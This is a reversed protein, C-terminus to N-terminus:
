YDFFEPAFAVTMPQAGVAGEWAEIFQLHTIYQDTTQEPPMSVGRGAAPEFGFRKYYVLSGVLFVVDAGDRLCQAVGTRVLQSGIGQGHRAPLVALPGLALARFSPPAPAVTMPSFLVHGVVEGGDDAVLSLTVKGAARLADVIKAEDPRGFALENVRFVAEADRPEEARILVL